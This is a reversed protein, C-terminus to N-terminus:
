GGFDALAEFDIQELIPLMVEPAAGEAQVLIRKDVLASLGDENEYFKERGVRHMKMGLIGANAIMGSFASVMPNDAMVTLTFSDTGNSYEAETGVGGGFFALGASMESDGIERTWGAPAEPLFASLEQTSMDKLLQRAYDLEEIAYDIDGDEYAQLASSLTDIVEDALAPNAVALLLVAFSTARFM